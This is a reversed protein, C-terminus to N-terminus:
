DRGNSKHVIILRNNNDKVSKLYKHKEYDISHTSCIIDIYVVTTIMICLIVIIEFIYPMITMNTQYPLLCVSIAFYCVLLLVSFYYFGKMGKKTYPHYFFYELKQYIFQKPNKKFEQFEKKLYSLYNHAKFLFEILKIIPLIYKIKEM